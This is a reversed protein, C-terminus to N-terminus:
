KLRARLLKYLHLEYEHQFSEGYLEQFLSSNTETTNGDETHYVGIRRKEFTLAQNAALRGYDRNHNRTFLNNGPRVYRM